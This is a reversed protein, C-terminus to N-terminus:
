FVLETCWDTLIAPGNRSCYSANSAGSVYGTRVILATAKAFRILFLNEYRKPSIICLRLCSKRKIRSNGLCCEICCFM